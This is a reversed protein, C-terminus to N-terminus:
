VNLDGRKTITDFLSKSTLDWSSIKDSKLNKEIYQPLQQSYM